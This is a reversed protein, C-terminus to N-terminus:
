KNLISDMVQLTSRLSDYIQKLEAKTVTAAPSATSIFEAKVYGTYEKYSTKYWEGERTAELKTNNPIRVLVRSSSSPTSRLNLAGHNSTSVWVTM